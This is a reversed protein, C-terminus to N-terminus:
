ELNSYIITFLIRYNIFSYPVTLNFSFYELPVRCLELYGAFIIYTHGKNRVFIGIRLHAIPYLKM